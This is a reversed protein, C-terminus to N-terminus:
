HSENYEELSVERDVFRKKRDYLRGILPFYCFSSLKNIDTGKRWKEFIDLTADMVTDSLDSIVKGRAKKLAINKCCTYILNFCIDSSEKDNFERFHQQYEQFLLESEELEAKSMQRTKLCDM